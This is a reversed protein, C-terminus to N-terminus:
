SLDALGWNRLVFLEGHVRGAGTAIALKRSRVDERFQPVAHNAVANAIIVRREQEREIPHEALHRKIERLAASSVGGNQVHIDFALAIGLETKLRLARATQRAPQFYDRNALKLQLAQVPEMEGFSRFASRWPQRLRVKNAGVSIANAFALQRAKSSRLIGLLEDTKGRFAERVLAPHRKQIGLVIKGLEGHKLTFGVIGWTIGAGDYNGEALTFDHGEFAATLQLSRDRVPPIKSRMLRRWTRVTVEGTPQLGNRRQFARVAKRTNDGYGGDIGKPDFGAAKLRRQLKRVIEGHVGRAFLVRSRAV